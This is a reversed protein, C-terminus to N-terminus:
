SAVGVGRTKYPSLLAMAGSARLPSLPADRRFRPAVMGGDGPRRALRSWYDFYALRLVASREVSEPATSGRLYGAVADTAMQHAEAVAARESEDLAGEAKGVLHRSADGLSM